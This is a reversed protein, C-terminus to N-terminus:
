AKVTERTLRLVLMQKVIAKNALMREFNGRVTTMAELQKEIMEKPYFAGGHKCYITLDKSYTQAQVERMLAELKTLMSPIVTGIRQEKQLIATFRKGFQKLLAWTAADEASSIVNNCMTPFSPHPSTIAKHIAAM